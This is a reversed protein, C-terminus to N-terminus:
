SKGSSRNSKKRSQFESEDSNGPINEVRVVVKGGDWLPNDRGTEYIWYGNSIEVAINAEIDKGTSDLISVIVAKVKYKDWAYIEITDGKKGKYRSLDVERIEPKKLYNSIAANRNSLGKKKKSEYIKQIEKDKLLEDACASADAFKKSNAKQEESREIKSYDPAKSVVTKGGMQRFILDGIQGTLGNLLNNPLTAM